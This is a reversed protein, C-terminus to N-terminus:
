RHARLWADREPVRQWLKYIFLSILGHGDHELPLSFDPRDIIRSWHPPLSEGHYKLSSNETWTRASRLAFDGTRETKNLFGLETLEQLSRGLDCGEPTSPARSESCSRVSQPSQEANLGFRSPSNM